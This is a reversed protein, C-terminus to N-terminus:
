AADLLAPLADRLLGAQLRTLRPVRGEIWGTRWLVEPLMSAVAETESPHLDVADGLGVTAHCSWGMGALRICHGVLLPPSMAEADPPMAALALVDISDFSLDFRQGGHLSELAAREDHHVEISEYRDDCVVIRRRGLPFFRGVPAGCLNVEVTDLPERFLRLATSLDVQAVQGADSM